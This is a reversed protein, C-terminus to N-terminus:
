GDMNLALGISLMLPALKDSANYPKSFADILSLIRVAAKDSKTNLLVAAFYNSLVIRCSEADTGDLGKLYKTAEAWTLGKGALLWRALDIVEKSQGASRLLTQAEALSRCSLCTELNILAQRPSGVAAEAVAELIEDSIQLKESDVVRVLLDLLLEEKVPKLDYRLCRTMIAKPIKSVETTCFAYYVHAPPEEVPKLLITWAAASLRHAEDIIIFKVASGGIARYLTRTVLERADDAGSKSAGDVEELNVASRMNGAFEAALIRSLTTKGTGSPGTFIFAHNRADKVVKKLSRVVADQGIVEEFKTPRYTTHFSM